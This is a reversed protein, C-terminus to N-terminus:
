ATPSFPHNSNPGVPITPPVVPILLTFCAGQGVGDSTVNLQGGLERAAIAGSHLGFGHGDARTTFGHQFIRTLNKAEIGVGHDRIAISVLGHDLWMRIEIHRLSLDGHKVAHVANSVLNVLIQLIKHRDGQLSIDSPIERTVKVAHRDMSPQNIRVADEILEGPNIIESVGATRSYSQQTSVIEKIHEVNVIVSQIEALLKTHENALQHTIETIFKPVLRGKPDTSFFPGPDDLHPAMLETTRQLSQLKSSDLSDRLMITSINVSNLVNGVNHLVSTAVEAMGALRSSDVLAKELRKRESIENALSRNSARIESDSSQLKDLMENFTVTLDGVEDQGFVTARVNYDSTSAIQAVSKSLRDLGGLVIRSSFRTMMVMGVACVAAIFLLAPIFKLLADYFLTNFTAGLVLEGMVESGDAPRLTERCTLWWGRYTSGSNTSVLSPDPVHPGLRALINGQNDRLEAFQVEPRSSLPSLVEEMGRVDQFTVPAVAYNAVMRTLTGIELQFQQRLQFTQYAFLSVGAFLITGLGTLQVTLTLKHRLPADRLRRKLNQWLRSM